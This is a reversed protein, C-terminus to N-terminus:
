KSPNSQWPISYTEETPSNINSQNKMLRGIADLNIKFLLQFPSIKEKNDLCSIKRTFFHENTNFPHMWLFPCSSNKWWCGHYWAWHTHICRHIHTHTHTHTDTHTRTCHTHLLQFPLVKSKKNSFNLKKM